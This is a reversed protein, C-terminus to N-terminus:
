PMFVLYSVLLLPIPNMADVSSLLGTALTRSEHCSGCESCRKGAGEELSQWIQNRWQPACKIEACSDVSATLARRFTQTSSHSYFCGLAWARVYVHSVDVGPLFFFFFINRRSEFSEPKIQAPTLLMAVYFLCRIYNSDNTVFMSSNSCWSFFQENASM